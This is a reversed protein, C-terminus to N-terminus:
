YKLDSYGTADCLCIHCYVLDADHFSIPCSILRGMTIQIGLSSMNEKAPLIVEHCCVMGNDTLCV